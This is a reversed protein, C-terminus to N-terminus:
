NDAELENGNIGFLNDIKGWEFKLCFTCSNEFSM